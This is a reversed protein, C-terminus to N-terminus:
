YLKREIEENKEKTHAVGVSAATVHTKL